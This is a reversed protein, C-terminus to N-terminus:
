TKRALVDFVATIGWYSARQMAVDGTGLSGEPGWAIIEFGASRLVRVTGKPSMAATGSQASLNARRGLLTNMLSRLGYPRPHFDAAPHPNHVVDYLYRGVGNTSLYFLGGPRLVRGVEAIARRYDTFYLVSYSIAGDFSGTAFPLQELSGVVFDANDRWGAQALLRCVTVRERAVDIGTTRGCERALALTWQGLGCGADLVHSRGALGVAKIRADYRSLGDRYVRKLFGLANPGLEREIAAMLGPRQELTPTDLM